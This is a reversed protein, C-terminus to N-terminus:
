FTKGWSAGEKGGNKEPISAHKGELSEEDGFYCPKKRLPLELSESQSM